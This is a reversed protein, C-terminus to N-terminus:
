PIAQTHAELFDVLEGRELVEFPIALADDDSDNALRAVLESQSARQETLILQQVYDAPSAYSGDAVHAEVYSKFPEPLAITLTSSAM